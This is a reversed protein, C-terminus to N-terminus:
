HRNSRVKQSKNFKDKEETLLSLLIKREAETITGCALRRYREVNQDNVFREMAGGKAPQTASHCCADKKFSLVTRLFFNLALVDGRQSMSSSVREANSWGM